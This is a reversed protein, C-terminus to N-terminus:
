ALPCAFSGTRARPSPRSSARSSGPKSFRRRRPRGREDYSTCVFAADLDCTAVLRVPAFAFTPLLNRRAHSGSGVAGARIGAERTMDGRFSSKM